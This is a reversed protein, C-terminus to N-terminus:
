QSEEPMVETHSDVRRNTRLQSYPTKEETAKGNQTTKPISRAVEQLLPNVQNIM